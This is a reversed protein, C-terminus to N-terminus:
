GTKEAAPIRRRGMCAIQDPRATQWLVFCRRSYPNLGAKGTGTSGTRRDWAVSGRVRYSCIAVLVSWCPRLKSDARPMIGPWPPIYNGTLECLNETPSRYMGRPSRIKRHCHNESRGYTFSLILKSIDRKGHVLQPHKGSQQCQQIRQKWEEATVKTKIETIATTMENM